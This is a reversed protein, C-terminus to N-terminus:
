LRAFPTALPPLMLERLKPFCQLNVDDVDVYFLNEGLNTGTNSCDVDQPWVMFRYGYGEVDHVDNGRLVNDKGYVRTEVQGQEGALVTDGGMRFGAGIGAFAENDEFINRDGRSNFIAGDPDRSGSGVNRRVANNESDEKIDVAESGNTQFWNDEIVNGISQDPHGGIRDRQEPATGIYVGEGNKEDEDLNFGETGCNWVRNMRFINHNSQDRIRVCEGQADHFLSRTIINHSAQNLRLLIDADQWELDTIIWWSHNLELGPDGEPGVLVALEDPASRLTISEEITGDRMSVLTEDLAHRGGELCIVDGPGAGNLAEQIDQGVSVHMTCIPAPSASPPLPPPSSLPLSQDMPTPTQGLDVEVTVSCGALFLVLLAIGFRSM